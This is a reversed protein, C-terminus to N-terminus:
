EVTMFSSFGTIEFIEKINENAGVIKMTKGAASCKKQAMLLVRLGASSVYDLASFDFVLDCISGAFLKDLEEALEGSTLTDLRGSLVLNTCGGEVTKAIEM